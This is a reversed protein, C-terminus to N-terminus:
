LIAGYTHTTNITSTRIGATGYQVTRQRVLSDDKVVTGYPVTCYLVTCYKFRGITAKVKLTYAYTYYVWDYMKALKLAM